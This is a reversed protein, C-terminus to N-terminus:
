TTVARAVLLTTIVAFLSMVTLLGISEDALADAWLRVRSAPSDILMLAFMVSFPLKTAVALSQASMPVVSACRPAFGPANVIALPTVMSVLLTDPPLTVIVM